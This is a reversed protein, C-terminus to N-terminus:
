YGIEKMVKKVLKQNDKNTDVLILTNEVRSVIGYRKSTNVLFKSYNKGRKVNNKYNASKINAFLKEGNFFAGKAIKETKFIYFEIKLDGKTASTVSTLMKEREKGQEKKIDKTNFDLKKVIKIFEKNTIKEKTNIKGWTKFIGFLTMVIIILMLIIITIDKTNDKKIKKKKNSM